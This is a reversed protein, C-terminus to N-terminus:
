PTARRGLRPAAPGTSPRARRRLRQATGSAAEAPAKAGFFALEATGASGRMRPLHRHDALLRSARCRHARQSPPRTALCRFQKGEQGPPAASPAEPTLNGVRASPESLPHGDGGRWRGGAGGLSGAPGVPVEVEGAHVLAAAVTM